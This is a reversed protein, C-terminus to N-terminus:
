RATIPRDALWQKVTSLSVKIIESITEPTMKRDALAYATEKAQEIRGETYWKESIECMELYGGEECKLVHVRKSLDGQSLDNPDTTKFYEMLRATDSGDDVAANVYLIYIGDDYPVDTNEFYKKVQYTTKGAEWLDTESIYIIHVDPMESYTKGKQLYESDIMSGYFRTRRAHDITDARQVELNILRKDGDEALVDLVADHSSIHAIRYQTRVEKVILTKIGTLVRLVHQCAAKDKLAVTMFVDSFLTLSRAEAIRRERAKIVSEDEIPQRHIPDAAAELTDAIKIM